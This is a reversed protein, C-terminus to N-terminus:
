CEDMHLHPGPAYSQLASHSNSRLRLQTIKWAFLDSHKTVVRKLDLVQQSSLLNNIKIEEAPIVESDAAFAPQTAPPEHEVFGLTASRKLSIPSRNTNSILIFASGRSFYVVGANMSFKYRISNFMHPEVLALGDSITQSYVPIQITMGPPLTVDNSCHITSVKISEPDPEMGLESM